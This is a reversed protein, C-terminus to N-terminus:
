GSSPANRSVPRRRLTRPQLRTTVVLRLSSSRRRRFAVGCKKPMELCKEGITNDCVSKVRITLMHRYAITTERSGCATSCGHTECEVVLRRPSDNHRIGIWRMHFGKPNLAITIRGIYQMQVVNGDWPRAVSLHANTNM